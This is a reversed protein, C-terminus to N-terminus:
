SEATYPYIHGRVIASRKTICLWCGTEVLGTRVCAEIEKAPISIKYLEDDNGTVLLSLFV